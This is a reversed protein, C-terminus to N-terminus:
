YASDLSRRSRGNEDRGSWRLRRLSNVAGLAARGVGVMRCLWLCRENSPAISRVLRNIKEIATTSRIREILVAALLALGAILACRDM